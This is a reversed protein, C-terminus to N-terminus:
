CKANPIWEFCGVFRDYVDLCFSFANASLCCFVDLFVFFFKFSGWVCLSGCLVGGLIFGFM